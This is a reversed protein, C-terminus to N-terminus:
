SILGCETPAPCHSGTLLGPGEQASGPAGVATISFAPLPEGLSEEQYVDVPVVQRPPSLSPQPSPDM